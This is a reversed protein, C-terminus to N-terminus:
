NKAAQEAGEDLGNLRAAVEFLRQLPRLNKTLIAQSGEGEFLREGAEDVLCAGVFLGMFLPGSTGDSGEKRAAEVDRTFQLYEGASLAKIRVKGGWEPVEVDEYGLDQAALIAAGDLLRKKAVM